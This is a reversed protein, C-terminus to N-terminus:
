SEITKAFVKVRVYHWIPAVLGVAESLVVKDSTASDFRKPGVTHVNVTSLNPIANYINSMDPFRPLDLEPTRGILFNYGSRNVHNMICTEKKTPKIRDIILISDLGLERKLGLFNRPGLTKSDFTKPVIHIKEKKSFIFHEFIEKELRSNKQKTLRYTPLIM